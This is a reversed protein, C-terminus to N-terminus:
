AALRDSPRRVSIHLRKADQLATELAETTARLRDLFAKVDAADSRQSGQSGQDSEM